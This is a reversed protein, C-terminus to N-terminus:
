QVESNVGPKTEKQLNSPSSCRPPSCSISSTTGVNGGGIEDAGAESKAVAPPQVAQTDAAAAFASQPNDRFLDIVESIQRIFKAVHEKELVGHEVQLAALLRSHFIDIAPHFRWAFQWIVIYIFVKM